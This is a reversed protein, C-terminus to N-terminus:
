TFRGGGGCSSPKSAGVGAITSVRREVEGAGCAPCRVEGDDGVVPRLMEFKLGCGPCEYEYIPM